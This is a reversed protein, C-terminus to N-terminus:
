TISKRAAINFSVLWLNTADRGLSNGPPQMCWFHHVYLPGFMRGQVASLANYAAQARADAVDYVADRSVIQITPADWVPVASDFTRAGPPQGGYPRLALCSIPGDPPGPPLDPYEITSTFGTPDFIGVGPVLSLFVALDSLLSV